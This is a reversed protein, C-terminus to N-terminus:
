SHNVSHNHGTLSRFSYRRHDGTPGLFTCLAVGPPLGGGHGEGLEGGVVLLGALVPELFPMAEFKGADGPLTADNVSRSVRRPFTSNAPFLVAWVSRDPPGNRRKLAGALCPPM